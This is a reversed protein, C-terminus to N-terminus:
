RRWQLITLNGRIWQQLQHLLRVKPLLSLNQCCTVLCFIQCNETQLIECSLIPILSDEPLWQGEHM